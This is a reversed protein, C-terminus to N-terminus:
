LASTTSNRIQSLSTRAAPQRMRSATGVSATAAFWQATFSCLLAALALLILIGFRSLLYGTDGNAIGTNIIDAVVLPVFLDGLAELLKFLPALISEKKYLGLYKWVLNM